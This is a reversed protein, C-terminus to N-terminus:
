CFCTAAVPSFTSVHPFRRNVPTQKAEAEQLSLLIAQRLADENAREIDLSVTSQSVTRNAGLPRSSAPTTAQSRKSREFDDQSQQLAITLAEESSLGTCNHQPDYREPRQRFREQRKREEEVSEKLIIQYIQEEEDLISPPVHQMSRSISSNQHHLIRNYEITRMAEAEPVGSSILQQFDFMETETFGWYNDHIPQHFSTTPTNDHMPQHFSTTPTVRPPFYPTMPGPPIMQPPMGTYEQYITSESYGHDM